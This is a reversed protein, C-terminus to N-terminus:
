QKEAVTLAYVLDYHNLGNLGRKVWKVQKHGMQSTSSGNQSFVSTNVWISKNLNTKVWKSVKSDILRYGDLNVWKSGIQGMKMWNSGNLDM